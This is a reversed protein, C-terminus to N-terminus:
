TVALQTKEEEENTCIYKQNNHQDPQRHQVTSNTLIANKKLNDEMSIFILGDELNKLQKDCSFISTTKFFLDDEMRDFILTM